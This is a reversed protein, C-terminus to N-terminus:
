TRSRSMIDRITPQVLSTGDGLVGRHWKGPHPEKLPAGDYRLWEEVEHLERRAVTDFISALFAHEDLQRLDSASFAATLMLPRIADGGLECDPEDKGFRLIVGGAPGPDPYCQLEWGPKYTLKEVIRQAEAVDM